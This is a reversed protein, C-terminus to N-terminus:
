RLINPHFLSGPRRQARGTWSLLQDRSSFAGLYGVRSVIKLRTAENRLEEIFNPYGITTYGAFDLRVNEPLIRLAELVTFPLRLPNLSGHYFFVIKQNPPKELSMVEHLRPCNWVVVIPCAPQVIEQFARAREGNPIIVAHARQCM